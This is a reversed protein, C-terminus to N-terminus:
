VGALLTRLKGVQDPTMGAGAEPLLREIARARQEMAAVREALTEAETLHHVYSFTVTELGHVMLSDQEAQPVRALVKALV